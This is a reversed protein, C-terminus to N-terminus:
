IECINVCARLQQIWFQEYIRSHLVHAAKSVSSFVMGRNKRLYAMLWAVLTVTSAFRSLLARAQHYCVLYTRGTEHTWLHLESFALPDPSVISMPPRICQHTSTQTSTLLHLRTPLPSDSPKLDPLHIRTWPEEREAEQSGHLLCNYEVVGKWLAM